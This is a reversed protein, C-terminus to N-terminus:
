CSRRTPLGDGHGALLTVLVRQPVPWDAAGPDEVQAAQGGCKLPQPDVALEGLGHGGSEVWQVQGLDEADALLGRDPVGDVGPLQESRRM